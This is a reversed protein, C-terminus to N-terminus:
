LRRTSCSRSPTFRKQLMRFYGGVGDPLPRLLNGEFGGGTVHACGHLAPDDLLPLLTAPVEARAALATAPDGEIFPITFLDFAAEEAFFFLDEEFVQDEYRVISGWQLFRAAELIEPIEAELAPGIPASIRALQLTPSGTDDYWTRTVRYLRRLEAVDVGPPGLRTKGRLDPLDALASWLSEATHASGVLVGSAAEMGEDAYPLFRPHPKVTYELASGHIKAAFSGIGARALITPGMVLHGGLAVDIGAAPAASTSGSARM